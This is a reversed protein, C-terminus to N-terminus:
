KPADPGTQLSLRESTSVQYKFSPCVDSPSFTFSTFLAFGSRTEYVGSLNFLTSHNVGKAGTLMSSLLWM